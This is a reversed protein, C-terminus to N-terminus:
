IIYIGGESNINRLDLHVINGDDLDCLSTIYMITYLTILVASNEAVFSIVSNEFELELSNIKRFTESNSENIKRSYSNGRMIGVNSVSGNYGGCIWPCENVESLKESFKTSENPTDICHLILDFPDNV